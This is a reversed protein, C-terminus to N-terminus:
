RLFINCPYLSIINYISSIRINNGIIYTFINRDHYFEAPSYIMINNINSIFLNLSITKLASTKLTINKM